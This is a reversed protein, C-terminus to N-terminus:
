QDELHIGATGAEILAKVLEHTNLVGGFGSEADAVIPLFYDVERSGEMKQIQDARQFTNNIRKVIIPVSNAAYLSQDPYMQLSDNADGAVQWGSLYISDLGAKAQQMAQNGTLAGLARVYKKSHIADWLKQAGNKALTHEIHVSGSLKKVDENTYPREIHKWRDRNWWKTEKM